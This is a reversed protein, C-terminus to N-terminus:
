AVADFHKDMACTIIIEPGWTDPHVLDNPEVVLIYKDREEASSDTLVKIPRRLVHALALLTLSDKSRSSCLFRESVKCFRGPFQVPVQGFGVPVM